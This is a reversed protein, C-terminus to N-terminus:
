KGDDDGFVGMGGGYSKAKGSDPRVHMGLLAKEKNWASRFKDLTYQKFLGHSEWINKPTDNPDLDGNQLGRTLFKGAPSNKSWRKDKM